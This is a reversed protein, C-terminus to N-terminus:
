RLYSVQQHPPLEKAFEEDLDAPWSEAESTWTADRPSFADAFQALAEGAVLAIEEDKRFATSGLLSFLADVCQLRAPGLYYVVGDIEVSESGSDRTGAGSTSAALCVGTAHALKSARPANTQDGSGYKHLAKWLKVLATTTGTYLRQDLIPADQSNYALAISLGDSFANSVIDDKHLTGDGLASLIRCSLNWCSAIEDSADEESAHYDPNLRFTRVYTAGLFAAGHVNGVAGSHQRSLEIEKACVELARQLSKTWERRQPWFSEDEYLYGCAEALFRRARSSNATLTLDELDQLKLPLEIDKVVELRLLSRAYSSTSFCISLCRACEDLLEIYERGLAAVESLTRLLAAVFTKIADNDGGYLDNLLADMTYHVAAAKGLPSFDWYRPRWYNTHRDNSEPFLLAIMESFDPLVPTCKESDSQNSNSAREAAATQLSSTLKFGLGERAISASTVDTDGALFCLLHSANALDITKLLDSSWRAAAVRSAKPQSPQSATWILPLLASALQRHIFVSQSSPKSSSVDMTTWPNPEPLTSYIAAEANSSISEPEVVQSRKDTEKYIRCYAALLADLAAVARPRLVEEENAACGFLLSATDVSVPVNAGSTNQEYSNGMAFLFYSQGENIVIPSRSLSCVVGYLADRTAINGENANSANSTKGGSQRPTSITELVRCATALSKAMLPIVTDTIRRSAMAGLDTQTEQLNCLRIVLANLLQAASIFPKGRLLSLGSATRLNSLIKTTALVSLSGITSVIRQQEASVEASSTFIHPSDELIKTTFTALAAFVSDSVMRRKLSLVLQSVETTTSSSSSPTEDVQLALTPIGASQTKSLALQANTAGVSLTLLECLLSIINGYVADGSSYTSADKSASGEGNAAGRFSAMHQKLYQSALQSVEQTGDGTAVVLLAVTRARGLSVTMNKNLSTQDEVHVDKETSNLFPAWRRNPSVFDLVRTKLQVLRSRQAMEAAWDRSTSSSGQRLREHGAQSLGPPPVNGAVTQYLLVDLLLNYLAGAANQDDQLVTRILNMSSPSSSGTEDKIEGQDSSKLRKSSKTAESTSTTTYPMRKLGLPNETSEVIRELARLILHTLQYWQSKRSPSELTGVKGSQYGLLVLLGPLLEELEHPTCRPVGLTLFALTLNLTFPDVHPLAKMPLYESTTTSDGQDLLLGLVARCPLKCKDDQRVRKMTHSLMEVLKSHIQSLSDQLLRQHQQDVSSLTEKSIRNIELQTQHNEGIRKLLRPLLKDLVMQLKESSDVLALRHSVRGFSSLDALATKQREALSPLPQSVDDNTM